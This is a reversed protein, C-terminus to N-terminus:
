MKSINIFIANGSPAVELARLVADERKLVEQPHRVAGGVVVGYGAREAIQLMERLSVAYAPFTKGQITISKSDNTCYIGIRGSYGSRMKNFLSKIAEQRHEQARKLDEQRLLGPAEKILLNCLYGMDMSVLYGTINSHHNYVVEQISVRPNRRFAEIARTYEPSKRLFEWSCGNLVNKSIAGVALQEEEPYKALNQGFREAAAQIKPDNVANYNNSM